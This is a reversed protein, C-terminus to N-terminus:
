LSSYTIRNIDCYGNIETVRHCYVIIMILYSENLTKFANCDTTLKYKRIFLIRISINLLCAFNFVSM